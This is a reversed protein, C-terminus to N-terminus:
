LLDRFSRPWEVVEIDFIDPLACWTELTGRFEIQSGQAECPGCLRGHQGDRWIWEGWPQFLEVANEGDLVGADLDQLTRQFTLACKEPHKCFESPVSRTLNVIRGTRARELAIRGAVIRDLDEWDLEGLKSLYFKDSTEGNPSPMNGAGCCALFATPLISWTDTLRALWVAEAPNEEVDSILSSRHNCDLWNNFSTPYYKKLRAIGDELIDQIGYTQGMQILASLSDLTIVSIGDDRHLLDEGCVLVRLLVRLRAPPDDVHVVPCGDATRPAVPLSESFIKRFVSSERALMDRYVRFGVATNETLPASLLIIDGDPFWIEQDETVTVNAVPHTEGNAFSELNQYKREANEQTSLLPCTALSEDSM